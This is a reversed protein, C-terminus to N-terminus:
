TSGLIKRGSSGLYLCSMILHSQRLEPYQILWETEAAAVRAKEERTATLAHRSRVNM